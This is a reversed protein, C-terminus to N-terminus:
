QQIAGADGIAFGFQHQKGARRFRAAAKRLRGDPREVARRVFRDVHVQIKERIKLVPEPRIPIERHRVDDRVLHAVMHLMQQPDQPLDVGPAAAPLFGAAVRQGDPQFQLRVKQGPDPRM